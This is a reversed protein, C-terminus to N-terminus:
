EQKSGNGAGVERGGNGGVGPRKRLMWNKKKQLWHIECPGDSNDHPQFQRTSNLPAWQHTYLHLCHNVM